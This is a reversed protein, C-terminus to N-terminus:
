ITVADTPSSLVPVNWIRIERMPGWNAPPALV